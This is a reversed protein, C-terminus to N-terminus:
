ARGDQVGRTRRNRRRFVLRFVVFYFIWTVFAAFILHGDGAPFHIWSAVLLGPAALVACVIFVWAGVSPPLPPFHAYEGLAGYWFVTLAIFVIMTAFLASRTNANAPIRV